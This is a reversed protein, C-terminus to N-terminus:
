KFNKIASISDSIADQIRKMANVLEEKLKEDTIEPDDISYQLSQLFEVAKQKEPKLSELRAAEAKARKKADEAEKAKRDSEEKAQQEAKEAAIKDAEEKAIRNKEDQIKKNEADIKDQQAKLEADQREKEDALKKRQAELEAEQDAKIKALRAEESKRDAAAKEEAAKQDALLKAQAEAIQKREEDMKIKELRQAEAEELTKIKSSLTNKILMLKENFDLEFEEFQSVDTKFINQEFYLKLSEITEFSLKNIKTTAEDIISNILNKINTKREEELRAKELKEKEKAEEWRKVEAQQKDEYPRTIAILEESVGAVAERFKKIKSAILKDQNQIETRATVLTTRSKKADDYTKNDTIEVFPNDKVIQLQKEKMGQLEPLSNVNVNEIQFLNQEPMTPTNENSM